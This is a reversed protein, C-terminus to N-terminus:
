SLHDLQYPYTEFLRIGEERFTDPEVHVNLVDPKETANFVLNSPSKVSYKPWAPFGPAKVADPDGSHVFSVLKTVIGHSLAQHSSSNAVMPNDEFWTHERGYGFFYSYEAAHTAFGPRFKGRQVEKGLPWTDFRFSYATMGQEAVARALTRRGGLFAYDGAIAAIRRSQTTCPMGINRMGQCFWDTQDFPLSFPPGGAEAPYADLLKRLTENTAQLFLRRLLGMVDDETNLEPLQSLLSLGEDSNSGTLIKLKRPFGGRMLQLSPAERLFAGDIATWLTSPTGRTANRAAEFLLGADVGRLCALGKGECGTAEAITEMTRVRDSRTVNGTNAIGVLGSYAVARQFLGDDRGGYALMQGVISYGGASQGWLTVKNRDGGFAEINEQVWQLAIRQDKLGLNAVGERQVEEGGPFGFIGLRYNIAVALIPTGIDVSKKVVYSFNSNLDSGFGSVFGGGHIWVLVPLKGDKQVNHGSPRVINLNLCEENIGSINTQAIREPSLSQHCIPGYWEAPRLDSWSENYPTPNAFRPARAFPINLFLDQNLSPVHRGLYTGNLTKVQPTATAAATATFALLFPSLLKM